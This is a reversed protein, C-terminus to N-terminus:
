ESRPVLRGLCVAPRHHVDGGDALDAALRIFEREQRLFANVVAPDFQTGAAKIIIAAAQDHAYAPKYARRTTLADYVDALAVIRAALPIDDGRAGAPYGRGDYWEHHGATVELAMQLFDVGPTRDCVRQITEAGVQVHTRMVAMEEPTLKGQKLLIHDPVAVKGIDHLPVARLLNRLFADDIRDRHEATRRLDEALIMSFRTVRELHRGTEADRHEALAALAFVVSDRAEDRARRTLLDNIASAAVNCVMDICELELPGYAGGQNRETVNLVGIPTGGASDARALLLPACVYARGAYRSGDGRTRQGDDCVCIEGTQFVRGAVGEGVPVSFGSGSSRAAPPFSGSNFASSRQLFGSTLGM